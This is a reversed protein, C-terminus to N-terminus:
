FWDTCIHSHIYIYILIYIFIHKAYFIIVTKLYKNEHSTSSKNDSEKRGASLIINVIMKNKCPYLPISNIVVENIYIINYM